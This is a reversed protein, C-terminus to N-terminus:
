KTNRITAYLETRYRSLHRTKLSLLTVSTDCANGWSKFVSGSAIVLM